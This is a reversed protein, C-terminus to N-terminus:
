QPCLDHPLNNFEALQAQAANIQAIDNSNLADNVLDTVQQVTLPYNGGLGAASLLGAM